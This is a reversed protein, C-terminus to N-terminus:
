GRARTWQLLSGIRREIPDANRIQRLNKQPIVPYHPLSDLLKEMEWLDEESTLWYTGLEKLNFPDTYSRLTKKGNTYQMFEHFYSMALERPTAYVPDRYRLTAHNTLSIAGWYGHMTFPAIAHYEDDPTTKFDMVLPKNGHVWLAAAALLTGEM